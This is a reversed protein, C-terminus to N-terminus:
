AACRRGRGGGREGREVTSVYLRTAARAPSLDETEAGRARRGGGRDGQGAGTPPFVRARVPTAQRGAKGGAAVPVSLRGRRAAM